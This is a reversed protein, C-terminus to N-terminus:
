ARISPVVAHAKLELPSTHRAHSFQRPGWGTGDFHDCGLGVQGIGAAASDPVRTKASARHPDASHWYQALSQVQVGVRRLVAVM